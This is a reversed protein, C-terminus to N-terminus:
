LLLALPDLDASLPDFGSASNLDALLNPGSLGFERPELYATVGLVYM